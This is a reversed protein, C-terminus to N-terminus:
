LTSPAAFLGSDVGNWYANEMVEVDYDAAHATDPDYDVGTAYCLEGLNPAKGYATAGRGNVMTCFVKVNPLKYGIRVLEYGIFPLDFGEGNHAVVVDSKSMLKHVIPAVAEWEPCGKLDALSIGHVAQAGADIPRKPDIRQMWTKGIKRRDGTVTDYSWASYAIEIIRHGEEVKLGTTEIDTFGVVIKSM